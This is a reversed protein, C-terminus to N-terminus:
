VVQTLTNIVSMLIYMNILTDLLNGIYVLPNQVYMVVRNVRIGVACRYNTLPNTYLPKAKAKIRLKLKNVDAKRSVIFILTSVRKVEHITTSSAGACPIFKYYVFEECM